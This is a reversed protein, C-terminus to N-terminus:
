KSGRTATPDLFLDLAQLEAETLQERERRVIEAATDSGQERAWEIRAAHHAAVLRDLPIGLPAEGNAIEQRIMSLSQLKAWGVTWAPLWRTASSTTVTTWEGVNIPPDYYNAM